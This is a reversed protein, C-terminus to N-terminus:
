APPAPTQSKRNSRRLVLFIGVIAIVGVVAIVLVYILTSSLTVPTETPNPTGTAASTPQTTPAATPAPTPTPAIPTSGILIAYSSIASSLAATNDWPTVSFAVSQGPSLATGLDSFSVAAVTNNSYYFTTALAVDSVSQSGSDQINGSVTYNGANNAANLNSTTLGSYQTNTASSPTIAGVSVTVTSANAVWSQDLTASSEPTFDLYFPAKQNSVINTAITQAETAAVVTGNSDYVQGVVWISGVTNSGTNQVEGVAVLDYTYEASTTTAPAVYWTYSLIQASNTQAGVFSMSLVNFSALALVCLIVFALTKKLHRGEFM